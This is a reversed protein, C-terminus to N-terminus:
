RKYIKEARLGVKTLIEYSITGYKKAVVDADKMIVVRKLRGNVATIDMCRNGFQGKIRKRELGDAYGYRVLSIERRCFSRKDGYLATECSSLSRTKLVPAVIKMVPKVPFDCEFPKYGYMLIGIRVMDAQIGKLFGGSASIHGIIKNNYSKAASLALLFKNYARKRSKENEPNSFHSYLGEIEVGVSAAYRFIDELELVNDVGQRNMGTNYKVHVKVKKNQKRSERVARAMDSKSAVTLTLGYRVARETDSKFAPILVLVDKDIGAQRLAVGEEVLAVAFCDVLKYLANAVAAGGHGYGDAKVVACFKVNKDLRSKIVAANNKLTNLNIIAQNRM